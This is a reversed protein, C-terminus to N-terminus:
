RKFIRATFLISLVFCGLFIFFLVKGFISAPGAIDSFGSIAAVCALILFALVYKM